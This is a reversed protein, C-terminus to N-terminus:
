RRIVTLAVSALILVGGIFTLPPLREDLFLWGLLVAILPTVVSIMMAFTSEVRALMWYFLWFAAITGAIALYLVAAIASWTWNYTLPNGEVALSYIVIPPLGCLMQGLLLSAPHLDAGKAKVLISSQSATYASLLIGLCALFALESQLQLQDSFIVAVGAIGLMVAFIKVATIKEQPLLIWALLLSFISITAQLISTLGSSIHQEGWFILSYTIAFQLVGTIAVLQWQAATKPLPIRQLRLVIFLVAAALIFRATAFGIPPLDNLGIKIVIWTSGWILCVILWVIITLSL